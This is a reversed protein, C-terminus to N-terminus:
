NLKALADASKPAVPPDSRTLARSRNGVMAFVEAWAIPNDEDTGGTIAQSPKGIARDLVHKAADVAIRMDPDQMGRRLVEMADDAM